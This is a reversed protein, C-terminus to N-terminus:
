YKRNKSSKFTTVLLLKHKSINMTHHTHKTKLHLDKLQLHFQLFLLVLSLEDLVLGVLYHSM